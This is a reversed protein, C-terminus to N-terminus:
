RARWVRAALRGAPWGAGCIIASAVLLAFLTEPPWSVNLTAALMLAAGCALLLAAWWPFGTWGLLLAGVLTLWGVATQSAAILALALMLLVDSSVAMEGM